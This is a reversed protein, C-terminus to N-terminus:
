FRICVAGKEVRHRGEDDTILAILRLDYRVVGGIHVDEFSSTQYIGL